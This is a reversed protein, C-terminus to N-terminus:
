QSERSRDAREGEEESNRTRPPKALTLLEHDDPDIGVLEAETFWRTPYAVDTVTRVANVPVVKGAALKTYGIASASRLIAFPAKSGTADKFSIVPLENQDLGHFYVEIAEKAFSKILSRQSETLRQFM